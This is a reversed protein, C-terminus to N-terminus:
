DKITFIGTVVASQDKDKVIAFAKITLTARKVMIPASYVPSSKFPQSGDVTFHIVTGPTDCRLTVATDGTLLGPRPTFVPEAVDGPRRKEGSSTTSVTPPAQPNINLMLARLYARQFDHIPWGQFADNWDALLAKADRFSDRISAGQAAEVAAILLDIRPSNLRDTIIAEYLGPSPIGLIVSSGRKELTKRVLSTDTHDLARVTYTYLGDQLASVLGTVESGSHADLMVVAEDRPLPSGHRTTFEPKLGTQVLAAHIRWLVSVARPDPQLHLLPVRFGRGCDEALFCEYLIRQGDPLLITISHAPSEMIPWLLSGPKIADGTKVANEQGDVYWLGKVQWAIGLPIVSASQASVATALAIWMLLLFWGRASSPHTGLHVRVRASTAFFGAFQM